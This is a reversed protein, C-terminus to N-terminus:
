PSRPVISPVATQPAWSTSPSTGSTACACRGSSPAAPRGCGSTSSVRPRGAVRCGRSRVIPVAMRDTRRLGASGGRPRAGEHRCARHRRLPRHRREHRVPDRGRVRHRAWAAAAAGDRRHLGVSHLRGGRAARDPVVAGSVARGRRAARHIGRHRGCARGQLRRKRAPRPGLLAISSDSPLAESSETARLPPPPSPRHSAPAPPGGASGPTGPRSQPRRAM